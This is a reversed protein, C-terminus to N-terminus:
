TLAVMLEHELILEHGLKTNTNDTWSTKRGSKEEPKLLAFM